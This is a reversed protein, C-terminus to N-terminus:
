SEKQIRRMLNVISYILVIFFILLIGTFVLMLKRSGSFFGIAMIGFIFSFIYFIWIILQQPLGLKVLIHHLHNTDGVTINNKNIGRRIITVTTEILPVGLALLPLLLALTAPAKIYRYITITAFIYGLFYAGTNGMFISAPPYNYRLFGLCSGTLVIFVLTSLEFGKILGATFLTFGAIASVGAALGDLGDLINIANIVTLFWIITIPISFLGLNIQAGFPNTLFDVTFGFYILLLATGIQFGLKITVSLNFIDDLIGMIIIVVAGISLKLIDTGTSLLQPAILCTFLLTIVMSAIFALGGMTPTTTKHITDNDPHEVINFNSLVPRLYKTLLLSILFSCLFVFILLTM